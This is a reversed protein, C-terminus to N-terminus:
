VAAAAAMIDVMLGQEMEARRMTAQWVSMKRLLRWARASLSRAALAWAAVAALSARDPLEMAMGARPVAM